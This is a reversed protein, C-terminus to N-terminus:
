RGLRIDGRMTPPLHRSETLGARMGVILSLMLWATGWYHVTFALLGLILMITTVGVRARAHRATDFRHIRRTPLIVFASILSLALLVAAPYGYRLAQVLWLSDISAPMADPRIWDDFGIGLFPNHSLNLGVWRWILLRFLGTQPDLTLNEIVFRLPDDFFLLILMAAYCIGFWLLLWGWSFRKFAAGFAFVGTFVILGLFPASSLSLSTGFITIAAWKMREIESELVTWFLMLAVSFFLGLLIPHEIPGRARVLGMRYAVTGAQMPDVHGRPFISAAFNGVINSGSATELLALGLVVLVVPKLVGVFVDLGAPSGFFVRATLYGLLFQIAALGGNGVLGAPGLHVYCSWFIWITSAIVFFDSAVFQGGGSVFKGVLARLMMPAALCLGITVFTIAGGIPLVLDTPVVFGLMVVLAAIRALRADFRYSQDAFSRDIRRRRPSAREINEAAGRPYAMTM